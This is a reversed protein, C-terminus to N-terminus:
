IRHKRKVNRYGLSLIVTHKVQLVEHCEGDGGDHIKVGGKILSRTGIWVANGIETMHYPEFENHAFNTKLCNFGSHFVPSTSVFHVPHEGGGIMCDDAISCFAGIDTNIISINSGVYSYRGITM